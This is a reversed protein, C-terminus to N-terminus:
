RGRFLPARKALFARQGELYDESTYCADILAQVAAVDRPTTRGTSARIAAKAARVTLPANDAVGRAYESVHGDLAGPDLAASVFGMAVADAADFRRASFFLDATHAPGILDVFRRIGDLRYGVGLRAAPMRFTSDTACFRLDCGAALGLGGGFCVGRIKAIVPKSCDPAADYAAEVARDFEALRDPDNTFESIDAGATFDSGAGEVVIIRVSENADLEAIALPLSRWMEFTLANRKRPNLFTIRGVPGSTSVVLRPLDGQETM